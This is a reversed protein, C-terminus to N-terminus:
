GRPRHWGWRHRTVPEVWRENPTQDSRVRLGLPTLGLDTAWPEALTLAALEEDTQDQAGPALAQQYKEYLTQAVMENTEDTAIVIVDCEGYADHRLVGSVTVSHSVWRVGDHHMTTLSLGAVMEVRVGGRSLDALMAQNWLRRVAKIGEFTYPEIATDPPLRRPFRADLSRITDGGVEGPAEGIISHHRQYKEVRAQTEAGFVGDIGFRHFVYGPDHLAHQVRRVAAGTAGRGLTVRGVAVDRLM